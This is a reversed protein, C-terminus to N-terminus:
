RVKNKFLMERKRQEEAAEKRRQRMVESNAIERAEEAAIEQLAVDRPIVSM